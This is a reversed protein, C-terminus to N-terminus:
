NRYVSESCPEDGLNTNQTYTEAVLSKEVLPCLESSKLSKDKVFPGAMSDTAFLKLVPKQDTLLLVYLARLVWLALQKIYNPTKDAM